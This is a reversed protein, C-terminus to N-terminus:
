IDVKPFLSYREHRQAFSSPVFLADLVITGEASVVVPNLDGEACASGLDAAVASLRVVLDVLSEVDAAPFGRYGNLLKRSRLNLIAERLECAAAPALMARADRLVEVLVGGSGLVVLPGFKKDLKVGVVMEIGDMIAKAIVGRPGLKATLKGYAVKLEARNALNLYVGGVDTKHLVGAAATKLVVPYGLREAAELAEEQSNVVEHPAVRIGYQSLFM